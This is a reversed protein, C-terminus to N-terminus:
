GGLSNGIGITNGIGAIIVIGGEPVREHIINKIREIVKDVSEALKKSMASVAEDIGQKIVISEVPIGYKTSSEEIKYKEPGPDGIAAGVGEAITGSEESELKAAADIMIILNIKNQYEEILKQIAEGPKGVRGGPGAAKVIMAKRGDIDLESMITETTIVKYNQSKMMLRAAVMAGVGDGIPIGKITAFFSMYYARAIDRLLAMLLELQAMIVISGAKRGVIYWHKAYKYISNLAMATTLTNELNAKEEGDAIPAIKNVLLKLKNRSVNLLHDLRKIFGYPDREVPEIYFFELADSVIKELEEKNQNYKSAVSIFIERSRKAYIELRVLDKSVRATYLWMQVPGFMFLFLTVLYVIGIILSIWNTTSTEGFGFQDYLVQYFVEMM